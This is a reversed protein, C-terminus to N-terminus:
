ELVCSCEGLTAHVAPVVCYFGEFNALDGKVPNDREEGLGSLYIFRFVEGM